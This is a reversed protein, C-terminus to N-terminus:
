QTNGSLTETRVGDLGTVVAAGHDVLVIGTYRMPKHPQVVRFSRGQADALLFQGASNVLVFSGSDRNFLGATVTAVAPMRLPEWNVGGNGSRYVVGRLGFALLTDANGVIGFFSGVYGTATEQLRQMKRDLIFVMGREALIYINGGISRISNLNISQDNDIRHLWPEWSKGGDVTAAIMGFSGVVFGKQADEFWVDLWPLAPGAKFNLEIQNSVAKMAPDDAQAAYYKKFAVDALRGDLQKTWNKGGDSSHLIVGDHGVAWGDQPRPFNVALLDSQVPVASQTWTKGQDESRIILGRSGVAVLHTGARVIALLPRTDIASQMEAPFDLPDRFKQEARTPASVILTAILLGLCLTSILSWRQHSYVHM